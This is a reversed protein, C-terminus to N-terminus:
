PLLLPLGLTTFLQPGFTTIEAILDDEIRLVDLKFARYTTDGPRLLYSAATPMRNVMTPLLKWDGDRDAGFARALLPYIADRGDFCMPLPPMTIRLDATAAAMAAEADCREHADIFAALLEKEKASPERASWDNRHSPLHKKMTERARQLASNAAAVSTELLEATEAAPMGLVERALLAARQKPPLV